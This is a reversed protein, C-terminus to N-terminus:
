VVSKRDVGLPPDVAEPELRAMDLGSERIMRILERTTLVHDVLPRGERVFEGRAAELKKAACPMVAVHVQRRGSGSPRDKILSALMQMPSRCTSLRPLLEPRRTECWRIWAPCCSTLLPLGGGGELRSLFERSEEVVTLDAGLTTDYIKEFGIRRLAAVILGMAGAGEKLGLGAGLAVRVAPAIQVSTELAADDLDRWVDEVSNKVVIAGTPCVASCQGCGVCDSDGLPVGFSTSVTMAAGRGAFDIAGVGQVEECVRVCDGCLICKSRDVTLCPSSDDVEPNLSTNLYRVKDINFRLALDQLRCAGSNPCVTCDRNHALMLELINRRYRRLRATNTRISAGARPPESCAAELGGRENEVLCMRCAGHISLESVYCFTPLEIGAKRILELLNREGEIEVPLGDITMMRPRTKPSRKQSATGSSADPATEPATAAATDPNMQVGATM